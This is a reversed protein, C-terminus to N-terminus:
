FVESSLSYLEPCYVNGRKTGIYFSSFYLLCYFAIKLKKSSRILNGKTLLFLSFQCNKPPSFNLAAQGFVCLISVYFRDVPFLSFPRAELFTTFPILLSRTPRSPDKLSRTFYEYLTDRLTDLQLTVKM